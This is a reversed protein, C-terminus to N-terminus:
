NYIYQGDVINPWLWGFRSIYDEMKFVNEIIFFLIGLVFLITSSRIFFKIDIKAIKYWFPMLFIILFNLNYAIGFRYGPMNLFWFLSAIFSICSFVLYHNNISFM